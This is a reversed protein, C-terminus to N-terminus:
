YGLPYSNWLCGEWSLPDTPVSLVREEGRFYVVGFLQHDNVGESVKSYLVIFDRGPVNRREDPLKREAWTLIGKLRLKTCVTTLAHITCALKAKDKSIYYVLGDYFGYFGDSPVIHKSSLIAYSCQGNMRSSYTNCEIGGEKVVRSQITCWNRFRRMKKKPPIFKGSTSTNLIRQVEQHLDLVAYTGEDKTSTWIEGVAVPQRLSQSSSRTRVRQLNMQIKQKMSFYRTYSGSVDCSEDEDEVMDNAKANAQCKTISKSKGGFGSHVLKKRVPKAKHRTNCKGRLGSNKSVKLEQMPSQWGGKYEGDLCFEMVTAERTTGDADMEMVTSNKIFFFSQDDFVTDPHKWGNREKRKAVGMKHRESSYPLCFDMLERNYECFGNEVSSEQVGLAVSLDITLRNITSQGLRYTKYINEHTATGECVHATSAYGTPIVGCLAAIALCHQAGLAGVGM